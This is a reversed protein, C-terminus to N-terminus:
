VSRISCTVTNTAFILTVVYGHAKLIESAVFATDWTTFKMITATPSNVSVLMSKPGSPGELTTVLEVVGEHDLQVIGEEEGFDDDYCVVSDPLEVPEIAAIEETQILTAMHRHYEVYRECKNLYERALKLRGAVVESATLM